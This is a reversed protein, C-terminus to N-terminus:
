LVGFVNMVFLKCEMNSCLLLAIVAGAQHLHVSGFAGERERIGNHDAGVM